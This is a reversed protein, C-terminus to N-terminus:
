SHMLRHSDALHDQKRRAYHSVIFLIGTLIFPFIIMLIIQLSVFVSHTRNYNQNFVWPSTLLCFFILVIGGILEWKWAVWLIAILIFSPIMHMLFAVSQQWATLRPDFADLALMSIFLISLICIIRPSWHLIKITASM